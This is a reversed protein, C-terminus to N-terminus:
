KHIRMRSSELSEDSGSLRSMELRNRSSRRSFGFSRIDTCTNFSNETLAVRLSFGLNDAFSPLHDDFEFEDFARGRGGFTSDERVM